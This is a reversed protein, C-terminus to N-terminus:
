LEWGVETGTGGISVAFKFEINEIQINQIKFPVM